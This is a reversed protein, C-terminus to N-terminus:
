DVFWTGIYLEFCVIRDWLRTDVFDKGLDKISADTLAVEVGFVACCGRCGSVGYSLDFERVDAAM